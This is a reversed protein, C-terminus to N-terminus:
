ETRPCSRGPGSDAPRSLSTPSAGESRGFRRRSRRAEPSPASSFSATMAALEAFSIRLPAKRRLVRMSKSVSGRAKISVQRVTPANGPVVPLERTRRGAGSTSFGLVSPSERGTHTRAVLVWGQCHIGDPYPRALDQQYPSALGGVPPGPGEGPSEDLESLLHLFGEYPLQALLGSEDSARTRDHSDVRARVPVRPLGGRRHREEHRTPSPLRQSAVVGGGGLPHRKRPRSRECEVM